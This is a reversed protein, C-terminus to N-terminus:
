GNRVLAVLVGLFGSDSHTMAYLYFATIDRNGTYFRPFKTRLYFINLYYLKLNLCMAVFAVVVTINGRSRYLYASYGFRIRISVLVIRCFIQVAYRDARYRYHVFRVHLTSIGAFFYIVAFAFLYRFLIDIVTFDAVM